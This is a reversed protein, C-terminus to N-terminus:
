YLLPGLLQCRLLPGLSRSLLCRLLPSLSRCLLCPLPSLSRCLLRMPLCNLLRLSHGLLCLSHGLLRSSKTM